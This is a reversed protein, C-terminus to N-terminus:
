PRMRRVQVRAVPNNWDYDGENLDGAGRIGNGVYVYGEGPDGSDDMDGCVPGPINDCLEDNWESGADYAMVMTERSTYPLSLANLAVFSDNTPILMAAFSIRSYYGDATVVVSVSEGPLLLGGSSETDGVEFMDLLKEQLPAINGSEALTALEMSAPEGLTFLRISPAHSVVLFPTFTQGRTINTITVEYDNALTQASVSASLVLTLLGATISKIM